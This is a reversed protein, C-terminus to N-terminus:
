GKCKKPDHRCINLGKLPDGSGKVKGPRVFKVCVVSGDRQNQIIGGAQKCNEKAVKTVTPSTNSKASNFNKQAAFATGAFVLVFAAALGSMWLTKM